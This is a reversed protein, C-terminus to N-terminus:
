QTFPLLISIRRNEAALPDDPRRPKTDAYGRVEVIRHADLGSQELIRRSANARDASLEWNTYSTGVGYAAADTHGELVIPNHLAILERAILSLALKATPRIDSSGRPFFNDGQENEILEIRLGEESVAVEFKASGLSPKATELKSKIRVAAQELDHTEAKHVILRIQADALRMPTSGNALPSQGSGYGKKFGAPNSFYGEIAKRTQDDMGIIWMVMFFAMMATVFDAYAVKWSGGHHAHAAKKIKKVIIPRGGDKKKM